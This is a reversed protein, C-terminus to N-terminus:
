KNNNRQGKRGGLKALTAYDMRDEDMEVERQARVLEKKEEEM